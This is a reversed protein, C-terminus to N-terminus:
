IKYYVEQELGVRRKAIKIDEESLEIDHSNKVHEIARRFATELGLNNPYYSNDITDGKWYNTSSVVHNIAEEKSMM